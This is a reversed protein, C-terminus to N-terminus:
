TITSTESSILDIEDRVIELTDGHFEFEGLYIAFFPGIYNGDVVNGTECTSIEAGKYLIQDYDGAGNSAPLVTMGDLLKVEHENVNAM